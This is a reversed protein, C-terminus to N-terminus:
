EENKKGKYMNDEINGGRPVVMDGEKAQNQSEISIYAFEIGEEPSTKSLRVKIAIPQGIPVGAAEVRTSEYFLVTVKVNPYNAIKGTIKLFLDDSAIKTQQEKNKESNDAIFSIKLDQNMFPSVNPDRKYAEMVRDINTEKEKEFYSVKM